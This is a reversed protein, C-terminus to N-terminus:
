WPSNDSPFLVRAVRFSSPVIISHTVFGFKLSLIFNTPKQYKYCFRSMLTIYIYWVLLINVQQYSSLILSLPFNAEEKWISASFVWGGKLERLPPSNWNWIKKQCTLQKKRILAIQTTWTFNEWIWIGGCFFFCHLMREFAPRFIESNKLVEINANVM